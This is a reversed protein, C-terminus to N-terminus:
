KNKKLFSKDESIKSFFLVSSFDTGQGSTKRESRYRGRVIDIVRVPTFPSGGGGGGGQEAPGIMMSGLASLGERYDM